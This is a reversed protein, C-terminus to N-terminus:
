LKIRWLLHIDTKTRSSLNKESVWADSYITQSARLYLSTWSCIKWRFNVYWREGRGYLAPISFAYLVDNEYNYIRNDWRQADFYQGRLQVVLPVKDWHYAVDVFISVGYDEKAFLNADLQTQFHWGRLTYNYQYRLAHLYDSNKTRSRLRISMDMDPRLHYTTLLSADYGLTPYDRIGYKPHAFRFGDFYINFTWLRLKRIEAGLYFGNEDGLRSTESFSYGLVNDYWPSYYRYLATLTVDQFMTLRTGVLAAYGWHTNSATALEAFLTTGKFRGYFNAGVVGQRDGRFYYQNWYGNRIYVSDKHATFAGTLGIKFSKHKFTANGGVVQRGDHTSYLVTANWDGFHLTTGIGHLYDYDSLSTFKKLGETNTQCSTLYSQKGIRIPNSFVLGQGFSAQFNGAVLDSICKIDHLQIYGGYKMTHWPSDTERRCQFGVQIRNRYNYKYKVNLFIPDTTFDEVKRADARILIDHQGYRMADKFRFSQNKSSETLVIFPLLNRIDYPALGRINQLEYVEQMSQHSLYLMIEDIQEDKLFPIQRLEDWSTNNLDIPHEHLDNLQENVEELSRDVGDEVLQEYVDQLVMGYDIGM